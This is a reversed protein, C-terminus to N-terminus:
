LLYTRAAFYNGDVFTKYKNAIPGYVMVWERRESLSDLMVVFEGVRYMVGLNYDNPRFIRCFTQAVQPLEDSDTLHDKELWFRGTMLHFWREQEWLLVMNVAHTFM